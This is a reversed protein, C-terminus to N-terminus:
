AVFSDMSCSTTRALFNGSSFQVRPNPYEECEVSPRRQDIEGLLGLHISTSSGSPLRTPHTQAFNELLETAAEIIKDSLEKTKHWDEGRPRTDTPLSDPSNAPFNKVQSSQTRDRSEQKRM